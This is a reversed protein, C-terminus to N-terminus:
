EEIEKVEGEVVPLEKRVARQAEIKQRIASVEAVKEYTKANRTALINKRALDAQGLAQWGTIEGDDLAKNSRALAKDEILGWQAMKIREKIEEPVRFAQKPDYKKIQAAVAPGSVEFHAAIAKYTFGSARMLLYQQVKPPIRLFWDPLEGPEIEVLNVCEGLEFDTPVRQNKPKGNRKAPDTM